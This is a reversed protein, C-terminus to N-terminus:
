YGRATDVALEPTRGERLAQWCAAFDATVDDPATIGSSHSTLVTRPLKWVPDDPRPPEEPLVDLVAARVQGDALAAGLAALDVTAGRGVNVFTAGRMAGFAGADFFNGTLPTLPLTSVVWRAAGLLSRAEQPTVADDFGPLDERPSRVVAVTRVGCARLLAGVRTGIRGAGYVLATRGEALESPVRRWEARRQQELHAPIAQCEALVWALVYQGIRDPMRGVTRTLLTREPWTGSTLLADVGANTSHFWLLRETRLADPLRPGVYIFPGEPPAASASAPHGAAPGEHRLVPRRTIEALEKDVSDAVEADVLIFAREVDESGPMLGGDGSVSM